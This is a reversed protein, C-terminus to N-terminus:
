AMGRGALKFWSWAINATFIVVLWIKFWSRQKDTLQSIGYAAFMLEFPLVPFHFRESQAFASFVLVVLYGCLVAIPLVHNRWEKRFLLLFLAFITFGSLINKIYNAGNLMMQNEQGPINVMTPFPITFILPAFVSAGAYKALTNGGEREARWQMGTAQSEARGSWLQEIEQMMEVRVAFVLIIAFFFMYLIKRWRKVHRGYGFLLAMGLALLLVTALATRFTFLLLPVIIPIILHKVKMRPLRLLYDTREVFLVTLFVMETEKLTVGCYYWFNPMLMCFIAAMRGTSEGFNRRALNYMLVCTLADFLCKFLRPILVSTGFLYNEFALWWCYGRDSFDAYNPIEEAVVKFGFDHWLTGVYTYFLEDKADFAHPEGTNEIYFFYVFVVYVLRILLAIFFLRKVFIEPSMNEWSITLKRSFVFFAVVSVFGFIMFQYPMAKGYFLLIILFLTIVYAIIARSTVQKPFYKLM